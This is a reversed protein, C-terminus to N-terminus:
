FFSCWHGHDINDEVLIVVYDKESPLLLDLDSYKSLESYKILRCRRGLVKRIDTDSLSYGEISEINEPLPVM